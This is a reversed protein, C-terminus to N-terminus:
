DNIKNFIFEKLEPMSMNLALSLENYLKKEAFNFYKEDIEGIKKKEDKRKENRLYATKIISILDKYDGSAIMSKYEQELTRENKIDILPVDKILDVIRLADEKSMIAKVITSDIPVNIKLTNDSVPILVYYKKDNVDKISEIICVDNKYVVYDNIQFM